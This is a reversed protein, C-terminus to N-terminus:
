DWHDSIPHRGYKWVHHPRPAFKSHLDSIHQMHSASFVPRLFSAFFQWRPVMGCSPRAIDECSLCTDVIPFFSTLCCYRRWMDGCYPSSRGVLPQSRKPLKPCGLYNWRTERRPLMVARCYTTLTLWVKCKAANFLSRWRHEAPRGDRQANAWMELEKKNPEMRCVLNAVRWSKPARWITWWIMVIQIRNPDFLLSFLRNANPRIISDFTLQIWISMVPREASLITTQQSLSYAPSDTSLLQKLLAM